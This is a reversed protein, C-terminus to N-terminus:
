RFSHVMLVGGAGLRLVRGVTSIPRQDQSAVISILAEAILFLGAVKLLDSM